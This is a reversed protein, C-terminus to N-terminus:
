RYAVLLQDGDDTALFNGLARWGPSCAGGPRGRRLPSSADILDHRVGQEKLTVKLRDAFFAPLVRQAAERRAADFRDGYAGARHRLRGGAAPAARYELVLRIVGLAAAPAPM